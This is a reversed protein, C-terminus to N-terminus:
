KHSGGAPAPKMVATQVPKVAKKAPIPKEEPAREPTIQTILKGTAVDWICIVGQLGAAAAMKGDPTIATAYVPTPLDKFEKVLTGNDVNWVCVRHDGGGTIAFNLGASVSFATVGDEHAKVTRFPYGGFINKRENHTVAWWYLNGDLSSGVIHEGNALFSLGTIGATAQDFNVVVKNTKCDWVKVFKDMAGTVYVYDQRPSFAAATVRGNHEELKVEGFPYPTWPFLHAKSDFSATLMQKGNKSFAITEITDKAELYGVNHSPDTLDWIVVKGSAGATGSGVALHNADGFFQLARAETLISAGRMTAETQWTGVTYILAQRHSGVALKKGDPSFALAYIPVPREAPKAPMTQVPTAPAAPQTATQGLASGPVAISLCAAAAAARSAFRNVFV